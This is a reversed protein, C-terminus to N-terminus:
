FINQPDKSTTTNTRRNTSNLSLCKYSALTPVSYSNSVITAWNSLYTQEDSQIFAGLGLKFLHFYTLLQLLLLMIM